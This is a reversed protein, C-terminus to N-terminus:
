PSCQRTGPTPSPANPSIHPTHPFPHPTHAPQPHPRHKFSPQASSRCAPGSTYASTRSRAGARGVLVTQRHSHVAAPRGLQSWSHQESARVGVCVECARGREAGCAGDLDGQLARGTHRRVADLVGALVHLQVEDLQRQDVAGGGLPSLAAGWLGPGLLRLSSAPAQQRCATSTHQALAGSQRLSLSYAHAPQAQGSRM